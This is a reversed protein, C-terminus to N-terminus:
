VSVKKVRAKQTGQLVCALCCFCCSLISAGVIVGVRASESVVSCFVDPLYIYIRLM